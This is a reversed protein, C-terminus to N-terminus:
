TGILARTKNELYFTTLETALSRQHTFHSLKFISHRKKADLKTCRGKYLISARLPNIGTYQPQIHLIINHLHPYLKCYSRM